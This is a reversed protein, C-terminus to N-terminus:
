GPFTASAGTAHATFTVVGGQVPEGFASSVTVGLPAAFTSNVIASQNDGSAIAMTFGRSEFAGIDLTGNVIRGLGRQDSAPAGSPISSNASGGTRSSGAGAAGAPRAKAASAAGASAPLAASPRTARSRAPASRCTAATVSSGAEWAPGAAAGPPLASSLRVVP